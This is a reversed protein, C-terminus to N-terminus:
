SAQDAAPAVVEDVVVVQSIAQKVALRKQKRSEIGLRKQEAVAERQRQSDLRQATELELRKQQKAEVAKAAASILVAKAEDSPDSTTDSIVQNRNKSWSQRGRGNRENKGNYNGSNGKISKWLSVIPRMKDAEEKTAFVPEPQSKDKQSKGNM